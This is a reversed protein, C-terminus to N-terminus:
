TLYDIDKEKCIQELSKDFNEELLPPGCVWVKKVDEPIQNDIFKHDWRPSKEDSFRLFLEFKPSKVSELLELAIAEKRSPFSAYMKLIFKGNLKQSEPIANMEGLKMRAVM